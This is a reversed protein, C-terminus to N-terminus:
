EPTKRKSQIYKYTLKILYLIGGIIAVLTLNDVLVDYLHQSFSENLRVETAFDYVSLVVFLLGLLYFVRRNTM